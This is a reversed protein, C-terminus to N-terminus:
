AAPASESRLPDGSLAWRIPNTEIYERIRSLDAEDRIVHDYYGRQWVPEGPTRRLENVRRATASKFSGVITRLPRAHGARLWLIGHVHNPMVVFGDPEVPFHSPIEHWCDTVASALQDSAFLVRRRHACITVFYAGASAYDFTPLRRSPM